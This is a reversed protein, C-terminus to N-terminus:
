GWARRHRLYTRSLLAHLNAWLVKLELKIPVKMREAKAPGIAFQIERACTSVRGNASVREITAVYRHGKIFPQDNKYNAVSLSNGVAPYVVEYLGPAAGCLVRYHAQSYRDNDWSFQVTGEKYAAVFGKPAELPISPSRDMPMRTSSIVM